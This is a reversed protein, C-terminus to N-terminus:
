VEGPVGRTFGDVEGAAEGGVEAEGTPTFCVVPFATDFVGHSGAGPGAFAASGVFLFADNLGGGRIKAFEVLEFFFKAPGEFFEFVEREAEDLKAFNFLDFVPLVEEDFVDKEDAVAQKFPTFDGSSFFEVGEEFLVGFPDGFAFAAGIHLKTATEQDCGILVVDDM